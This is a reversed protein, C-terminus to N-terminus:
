LASVKGVAPDDDGDDEEAEVEEAKAETQAKAAELAALAGNDAAAANLVSEWDDEDDATQKKANKKPGM